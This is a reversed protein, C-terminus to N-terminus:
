LADLAAFVAEPGTFLLGTGGMNEWDRINRAADDILVCDRGACFDPKQERLVINVVVDGSLERRVWALKDEAAHAINRRPKPIGTLIECASGYRAWLADFMDRAGPMPELRGYFHDVKRVADWMRDDYHADRVGNIPTPTMGALELVGRDFDALVGDMDIYLKKVKM